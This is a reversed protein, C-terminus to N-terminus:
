EGLAYIANMHRLRGKYDIGFGFVYRDEVELAVYDSSVGAKCRDHKKHLLVATIVEKAEQKYCYEVIADLTIGEDLIDDLILVTRGKLSTRPYVLWDLKDGFTKNRYRTAHIYDLELNGTLRTILQGTFVLGGQMVCLVLPNKNELRQNLHSAIDDLAKSIQEADYILDAHSLVQELDEEVNKKIM